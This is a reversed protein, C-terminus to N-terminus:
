PSSAQRWHWKPIPGTTSTCLPRRTSVFNWCCALPLTVPTATSCPNINQRRSTRGITLCREGRRPLIVWGTTPSSSGRAVNFAVGYTNKGLVGNLEKAYAAYETWNTPVKLGLREFVDKRYYITWAQNTAPIGTQKGAWNAGNLLTKNIYTALDKNSALLDKLNIVSSGIGFQGTWLIDLGLVDYQDTANSIELVIDQYLSNYDTLSVNM